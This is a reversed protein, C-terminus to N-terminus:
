WIASVPASQTQPQSCSFAQYFEPMNALAGIVRYNDPSHPNTTLRLRLREPREKGHWVQAFAIFFRQEPTFGDIDAPRGKQALAKELASKAGANVADTTPKYNVGKPVDQGAASTALVILALVVILAQAFKM